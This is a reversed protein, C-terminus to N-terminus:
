QRVIAVKVKSDGKKYSSMRVAYFTNEPLGCVRALEIIRARVTNEPRDHTIKGEKNEHIIDTALVTSAKVRVAHSRRAKADGRSTTIGNTALSPLTSAKVIADILKTNEYILKSAGKKALESNYARISALVSARTLTAKKAKVGVAKATTSIKKTQNRKATVKKTAMSPVNCSPHVMQAIKKSKKKSKKEEYCKYNKKWNPILM